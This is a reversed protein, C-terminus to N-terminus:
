DYYDGQMHLLLSAKAESKYMFCPINSHIVLVIGYEFGIQIHYNGNDM